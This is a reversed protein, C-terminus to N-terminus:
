FSGLDHYRQVPGTVLHPARPRQVLQPDAAAPYLNTGPGFMLSDWLSVRTSSYGNLVGRRRVFPYELTTVQMDSLGFKTFVKYQVEEQGTM